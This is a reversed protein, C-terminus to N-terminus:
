EILEITVKVSGPVHLAETGSDTKGAIIIGPAHIKLVESGDPEPGPAGAM